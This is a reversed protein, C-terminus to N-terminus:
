QKVGKLCEIPVLRKKNSAYYVVAFKKIAESRFQISGGGGWEEYTASLKTALHTTGVYIGDFEKEITKFKDITADTFESYPVWVHEGKEADYYSVSKAPFEEAIGGFPEDFIPSFDDIHIWCGRKECVGHM